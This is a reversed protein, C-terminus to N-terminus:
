GGQVATLVEVRSEACLLTRDWQTRPVLRGDVALAMGLGAGEIPRGDPGVERGTLQQVLDRCTTGAPLTRTEDNVTLTLDTSM